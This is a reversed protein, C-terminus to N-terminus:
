RAGHSMELALSFLGLRKCSRRFLGLNSVIGLLGGALYGLRRNGISSPLVFVSDFTQRPFLQLIFLRQSIGSTYYDINM